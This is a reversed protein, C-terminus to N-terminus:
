ANEAEEGRETLTTSLTLSQGLRRWRKEWFKAVWLVLPDKSGRALSTLPVYITLYFFLRVLTFRQVLPLWRRGMEKYGRDVDSGKGYMRDRYERMVITDPGDHGDFYTWVWCLGGKSGGGGATTTTLTPTALAYQSLTQFAAQWVNGPVAASAKISADSANGVLKAKAPVSLGPMKAINSRESAVQTDASNKALGQMMQATPNNLNGGYVQKLPDTFTGIYDSQGPLYNLTTTTTTGSQNAFSM